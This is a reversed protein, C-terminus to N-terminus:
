DLGALRAFSSEGKKLYKITKWDSIEYDQDAAKKLMQEVQNSLLLVLLRSYLYCEFRFISMKGIKDLELLSKWAKFLLEIQWRLRYYQQVQQQSLQRANTNTIFINYDMLLEKLASTQYNYRAKKSQNAIKRKQKRSRRAAVEGPVREIVLRVKLKEEEKGLYVEPLPIGKKLDTLLAAWEVQKYHGDEKVYLNVGTKYRSVFFGGAEDLAQLHDIKFYGLDMLHLERKVRSYDFGELLLADNEKGDRIALQRISGSLLEYQQHIKISSAGNSGGNGQYFSALHHPLKFSTADTLVVGDFDPHLLAKGSGLTQQFVAEFCKQMFGVAFTNFREDLSQKSLKIGHREFLEECMQSLSFDRGNSELLLHLELFMWGSLRSTSREIFRTQRALQELKSENLIGALHALIGEESLSLGEIDGRKM